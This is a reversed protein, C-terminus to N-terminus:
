KKNVVSYNMKWPNFTKVIARGATMLEAFLGSQVPPELEHMERVHDKLLLLSYGQYFQHDGVVFVSHRFEHILHPNKNRRSADVRECLVCSNDPATRM